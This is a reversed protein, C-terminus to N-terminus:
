LSNIFEGIVGSAEALHKAGDPGSYYHTAGQVIHLRKQKHNVAEFLRTTHSPTCADDASNGVVLVPM